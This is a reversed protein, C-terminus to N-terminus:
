GIRRPAPALDASLPRMPGDGRCSLTDEHLNFITAGCERQDLQQDYNGDDRDQDREQQRGDLRRALGCAADLADVVELQDAALGRGERSSRGLAGGEGVVPDPGPRGPPNISRSANSCAIL